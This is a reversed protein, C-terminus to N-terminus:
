QRVELGALLLYATISGDSTCEEPVNMRGRLIGLGKAKYAMAQPPPSKKSKVALDDAAGSVILCFAVPDKIACDFM